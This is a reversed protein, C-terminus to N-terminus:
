LLCGGDVQFVQGTVFSARASALYVVAPAVEEPRAISRTLVGTRARKANEAPDLNKFHTAYFGTDRNFRSGASFAAPDDSITGYPAVCNVTIGHQGVEKALVRTFAHVAGKAASYVPLMYDGVLGATSGINVVRGIGRAIMPKLVAHTMRLTTTLNIDIDKAWSDPDSDAFLGSGVNGGVNNVLAYVPGLAEAADLIRPPSEPDLLDAQVFVAREAGREQALTVVRAGAAQDRGVVVVRAGEAAFGLAIARGINATAGTVIITKGELGFDM